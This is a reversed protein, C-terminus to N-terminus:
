SRRWLADPHSGIRRSSVELHITTHGYLYICTCQVTFAQSIYYYLGPVCRYTAELYCTLDKPCPHVLDRLKPIEYQCERRGSCVRDLLDLVSSSCGLFGYDHTVCRGLRLRGYRAEEMLVAEDVGTCSANFTEFQCFERCEACRTVSYPCRQCAWMNISWKTRCTHTHTDSMFKQVLHGKVKVNRMNTWM